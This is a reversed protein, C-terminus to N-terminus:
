PNSIKLTFTLSYVFADAMLDYDSVANTMRSAYATIPATDAISREFTLAQRVQEALAMCEDFDAAYVDCGVTVADRAGNKDPMDTVSEVRYAVYPLEADGGVACVPFVRVGSCREAMIEKIQIPASVGTYKTAM